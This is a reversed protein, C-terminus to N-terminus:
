AVLLLILCSRVTVLNLTGLFMCTFLNDVLVPDEPPPFMTVNLTRPVVEFKNGGTTNIPPSSAVLTDHNDVESSTCASWGGAQGTSPVECALRCALRRGRIIGQLVSVQLRTKDIDCLLVLQNVM